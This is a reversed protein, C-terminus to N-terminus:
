RGYGKDYSAEDWAQKPDSGKSGSRGSLPRGGIKPLGGDAAKAGSRPRSQKRPASQLFIGVKELEKSIDSAKKRSAELEAVLTNLENEKSAKMGEADEIQSELTEAKAKAEDIQKQVIELEGKLREAEAQCKGVDEEVAKTAAEMASDLAAQAATVKEQLKEVKGAAIVRAWGMCIQTMLLDQNSTISKMASTMGRAKGRKKRGEVTTTNRWATTVLLLVGQASAGITKEVARLKKNKERSKRIDAIWGQFCAAQLAEGSAAIMRVAKATNKEKSKISACMKRWELFCSTMIVQISGAIMRAAKKNGAEKWFADLEATVHPELQFFDATVQKELGQKAL